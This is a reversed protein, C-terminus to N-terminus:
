EFDERRTGKDDNLTLTWGGQEVPRDKLGTVCTNYRICSRFKFHDVYDELYRQFVPGPTFHPADGPM